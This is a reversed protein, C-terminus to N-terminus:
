KKKHVASVCYCVTSVFHTELLNQAEALTAGTTIVNDLLLVKLPANKGSMYFANRIVARRAATSPCTCLSPVGHRKIIGNWVHVDLRAGVYEAFIKMHPRDSSPIYALADCDTRSLLEQIDQLCLDALYKMAKINGNNKFRLINYRIHNSWYQFSYYVNNIRNM